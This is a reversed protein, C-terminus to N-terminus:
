NAFVRPKAFASINCQPKIIMETEWHHYYNCCPIRQRDPVNQPTKVSYQNGFGLYKMHIVKSCGQDNNYHGGQNTNLPM